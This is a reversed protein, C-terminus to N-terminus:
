FVHMLYLINIKKVYVKKTQSKDTDKFFFLFYLSKPTVKYKCKFISGVTTFASLLLYDKKNVLNDTLVELM